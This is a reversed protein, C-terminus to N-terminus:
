VVSVQAPQSPGHQPRVRSHRPLHIAHKAQQHPLHQRMYPVAAFAGPTPWMVGSATATHTQMCQDTCHVVSHHCVIAATVKCLCAIPMFRFRHLQCTSNSVRCCSSQSPPSTQISGPNFESFPACVFGQNPANVPDPSGCTRRQLCRCAFCLSCFALLVDFTPAIM